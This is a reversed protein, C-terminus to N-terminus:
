VVNKSVTTSAVVSKNGQVIVEQLPRILPALLIESKTDKDLRIKLTYPSYGVYSCIVTYNGQPSSISYFGYNNASVVQNTEKILLYAGILNEGTLSDRISGYLTFKQSFLPIASSLILSLLLTKSISIKM